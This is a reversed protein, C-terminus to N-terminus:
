FSESAGGAEKKGRRELLGRCRAAASLVYWLSQSLPSLLCSQGFGVPLALLQALTRVAQEDRMCRSYGGSASPLHQALGVSLVARGGLECLCQRFLSGCGSRFTRAGPLHSVGLNLLPSPSLVVKTASLKPSTCSAVHPSSSTNFQIIQQCGKWPGWSLELPFSKNRAAVVQFKKQLCLQSVQTMRHELPLALGHKKPKASSSVSSSSSNHPSRECAM